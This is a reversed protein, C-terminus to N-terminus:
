RDIVAAAGGTVPDCDAEGESGKNKQENKGDRTTVIGTVKDPVYASEEADQRRVAPTM